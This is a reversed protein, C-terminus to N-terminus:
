DIPAKGARPIAAIDRLASNRSPQGNMSQLVSEVAAEALRLDAAAYEVEDSFQHLMDTRIDLGEEGSAEAQLLSQRARQLRHMLSDRRMRAQAARAEADSLDSSGGSRLGGDSLLDGGSLLSLQRSLRDFGTELGGMRALMEAAIRDGSDSSQQASLLTTGGSIPTRALTGNELVDRAAASISSRAKDGAELDLGYEFVRVDKLDFPIVEGALRIHVTPKNYAHAVALEYFVNPNAGTLDAVILDAKLIATIIAPTIEGPNPDDDARLVVAVFDPVLAKEVILRKVVDGRKRIDSGETGIPSILFCSRGDSPRPTAV